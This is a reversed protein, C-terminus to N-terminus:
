DRLSKNGYYRATKRYYNLQSRWYWLRRRWNADEKCFLQHACRGQKKLRAATRRLDEDQVYRRLVGYPAIMWLSEADAVTCGAAEHELVDAVLYEALNYGAATVYYSSRGQRPNMEFLKYAGTRPDRKMDFNAFGVWHMDELFARLKGLLAADNVEPGTLIGAYNGIGEPTQEELLPRGLALLRVKGDLGCYANLVRMCGDDGPIYEQLILDDQYESGYIATTIADFDERNQALFVKKKHPFHCNWYAMSNSPKIIVPFDFPLEATKYNQATCTATRPHDLGYADCARYFNDKIDLTLVTDLDPCAFRFYPALAERHRALLITYGDACSVLVLPTGAHAKAYGLLTAVFVEDEELKPEVKAIRVLKTNRCAVLVAKCIVDSVVGYATYFSRAMGYVNADSGLLVPQFNQM